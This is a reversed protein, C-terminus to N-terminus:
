VRLPTLTWLPSRWFFTMASTTSPPSPDFRKLYAKVHNYKKNLGCLNNLVLTYDEVNGNLNYLDDAMQKM